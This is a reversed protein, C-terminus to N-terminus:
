SVWWLTFVTLGLSFGVVMWGSRYANHLEFGWGIDWFLHRIGNAFHFYFCFAWGLIMTRGLPCSFWGSVILYTEQGMAIAGLWMM